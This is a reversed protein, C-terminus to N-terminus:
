PTPKLVAEVLLMSKAKKVMLIDYPKRVVFLAKYPPTPEHELLMATHWVSKPRLLCAAKM